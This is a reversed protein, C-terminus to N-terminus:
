FFYLSLLSSCIQVISTTSKQTSHVQPKM